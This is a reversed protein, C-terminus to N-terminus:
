GAAVLLGAPTRAVGTSVAITEVLAAVLLVPPDNEALDLVAYATTDCDIRHDDDHLALVARALHARRQPTDVEAMAAALAMAVAQHDDSAVAQRLQDLGPSLLRPLRLLVSLDLRPLRKVDELLRDLDANTHEVLLPAWERAQGQLWIHARQDPSPGAVVGCCRKTKRGSGCACPKNRGVKAM